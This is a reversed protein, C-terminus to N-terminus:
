VVEGVRVTELCKLCCKSVKSLKRVSIVVKCRVFGSQKYLLDMLEGGSHISVDQLQNSMKRYNSM